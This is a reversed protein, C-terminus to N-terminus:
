PIEAHCQRANARLQWGLGPADPLRIRGDRIDFPPDCLETRLPNPNIDLECLADPCGAALHLSAGLGPASGLMHPVVRKGARAAEDILRVAVSLSAYKTVDPQLVNGPIQSCAATGNFAGEGEGEGLPLPFLTPPMLVNEGVAIPVQDLACLDALRHEDEPRLPEELWEVDFDALVDLWRLAQPYTWGRNVDVAIRARGALHGALADLNARDADDGFGLKLKFLTVGKALHEDILDFPLPANIGSAYVRVEDTPSPLRRTGSGDPGGSENRTAPSQGAVPKAGRNDFLFRHLPKGARQAALDYLACEVACLACLLPGVTGSQAAPGEFARFMAASFDAVDGVERGRLYPLYAREFAVVREFAAWHPFNVWSEGLGARGEGDDIEVVVAHRADMRGFATVVPQCLPVQVHRVRADAIRFSM